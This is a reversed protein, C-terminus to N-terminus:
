PSQSFSYDTSTVFIFPKAIRLAYSGRAFPVIFYNPLALEIADGIAAFREDFHRDLSMFAYYPPNM